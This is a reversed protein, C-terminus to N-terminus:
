LRFLRRLEWIQDEQLKPIRVPEAEVYCSEGPPTALKTFEMKALDGHFHVVDWNM